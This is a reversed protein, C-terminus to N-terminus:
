LNHQVEQRGAGALASLGLSLDHEKPQSNATKLGNTTLRPHEGHQFRLRQAVAHSNSSPQSLKTCRVACCRLLRPGGMRDTYGVISVGANDQSLGHITNHHQICACADSLKYQTSYPVQLVLMIAGKPFECGGNRTQEFNVSAGHCRATYDWRM